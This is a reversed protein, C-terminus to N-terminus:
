AGGGSTGEDDGVNLVIEHDCFGGRAAFYALSSAVEPESLGMARLLSRAQPCERSNDCEWTMGKKPDEHFNVYLPGGLVEIFEGFRPNDTTMVM